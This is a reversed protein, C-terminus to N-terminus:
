ISFRRGPDLERIYASGSRMESSGFSPVWRSGINLVIATSLVCTLLSSGGYSLFPLTLGTIPAVGLSMGLNIFVQLALITTLGVAVLRGFPERSQFATQLSQLIIIGFLLLVLTSGAFGLDQALITFVFDNHREPVWLLSRTRGAEGLGMGAVGGVACARVSQTQQYILEKPVREPYLFSILRNRQYDKLGYRYAIPAVLLAALLLFGLHRAKAGATYLMAIAAPFLLLATGLDPQLLILGTPLATLLLPGALGRATDIRRSFMLLRALALVLAIKLFEAPQFSLTGFSFWGRAGKVTKGFWFLAILLVICAAYSVYAVRRLSYYNPLLTLVILFLSLLAFALQKGFQSAFFGEQLSAAPLYSGLAQLGLGMLVLVSGLLTWNVGRGKWNM